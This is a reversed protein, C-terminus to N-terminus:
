RDICFRDLRFHLYIGLRKADVFSLSNVKRLPWRAHIRNIFRFLVILLEELLMDGCQARQLLQMVRGVAVCEEQDELRHVRSSFVAGDLM